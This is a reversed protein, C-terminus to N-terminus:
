WVFWRREDEDFEAIGVPGLELLRHIHEIMPIPLHDYGESIVFVHPPSHPLVTNGFVASAVSVNPAVAHIDMGRADKSSFFRLKQVPASHAVWGLTCWSAFGVPANELLADLGLRLDEGLTEDVRELSFGDHRLGLAEDHALMANAAAEESPAVIHGGVKRDARLITVAYLKFRM